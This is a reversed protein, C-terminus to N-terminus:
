YGASYLLLVVVAAFLCYYGFYHWRGRDLWRTLWRLALLGAFFSCVLGLLGPLFLSFSHGGGFAVL